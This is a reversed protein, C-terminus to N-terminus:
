SERFLSIEFIVRISSIQEARFSSTGFGMLLYGTSSSCYSSSSESSTSSGRTLASALSPCKSVSPNVVPGGRTFSFEALAKKLFNLDM